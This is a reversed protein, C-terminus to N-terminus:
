IFVDARENAAPPSNSKAQGLLLWFGLVSFLKEGCAMSGARKETLGKGAKTKALLSSTM